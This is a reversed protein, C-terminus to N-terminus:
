INRAVTSNMWGTKVDFGARVLQLKLDTHASHSAFQAQPRLKKKMKRFFNTDWPLTPATFMDFFVYNFGEPLKDVNTFIDADILRVKVNNDEYTRHKALSSLIKKEEEHINRSPLKHLYDMLYRDNDVGYIVIKKDPHNTQLHKIALLTNVGTGFGLDLIRYENEDNFISTYIARNTEIGTLPIHAQSFDNRVM